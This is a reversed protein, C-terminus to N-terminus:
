SPIRKLLGFEKVRLKPARCPQIREWGCDSGLVCCSRESVALVTVIDTRTFM